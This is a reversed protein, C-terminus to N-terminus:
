LIEKAWEDFEAKSEAASRGDCVTLHLLKFKNAPRTRQISLTHEPSGELKRRRYWKAVSLAVRPNVKTGAKGSRKVVSRAATKPPAITANSAVRCCDAGCLDSLSLVEHQTQSFPEDWRGDVVM